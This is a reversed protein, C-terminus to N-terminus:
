FFIWNTAKRKWEKIRGAKIDELGRILSRLLDEDVEAKKKLTEYEKRSITVTEM